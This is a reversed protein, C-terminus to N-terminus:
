NQPTSTKHAGIKTEEGDLLRKINDSHRYYILISMLTFIAAPEMQGTAAFVAPVAVAATLAALSSYRFIVAVGLWTVAFVGFGTLSCGALAGLYTAVGKGGKFRLWVPYLHGAFAALGALLGAAPAILSATIAVAAAAKGADALLTAAALGKRGTRLVNTAGINGSGIGRIDGLGATWTFLLGFPIAGLAYGLVLAALCELATLQSFAGLM